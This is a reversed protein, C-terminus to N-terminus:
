DCTAGLRKVLTDMAAAVVGLETPVSHSSNYNVQIQLDTYKGTTPEFSADPRKRIYMNGTKLLSQNYFGTIATNQIAVLNAYTVGYSPDYYVNGILLLEHSGFTAFPNFNTQGVRKAQQRGQYTVGPNPGFNYGQLPGPYIIPPYVKDFVPNAAPWSNVWAYTNMTAANTNNKANFTWPGVMLGENINMARILKPQLTIPLGQALISRQLLSVFSNCQGNGTRLLGALTDSAAPQLVGKVMVAWPQYYHLPAGDARTVNLSTFNSWIRSLVTQATPQALPANTGAGGKCGLAVLTEYLPPKLKASPNAYLLYITDTTKGLPVWANGNISVEWTLTLSYYTVLNPFPQATQGKSDTTATGDYAYSGTNLKNVPKAPLWAQFTTNGPGVGNVMARIEVQQLEKVGPNLYFSAHVQLTANKIYAYPAAQLATGRSDRRGEM